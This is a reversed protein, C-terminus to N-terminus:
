KSLPYHAIRCPGSDKCEGDIYQYRMAVVQGSKPWNKKPLMTQYDASEPSFTITEGQAPCEVQSKHTVQIVTAEIKQETKVIHNIKVTLKCVQWTHAQALPQLSTLILLLLLRRMESIKIILKDSDYVM